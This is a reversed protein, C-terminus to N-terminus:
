GNIRFVGAQELHVQHAQREALAVAHAHLVAQVVLREVGGLLLAAATRGEVYVSFQPLQGRALYPTTTTTAAATAPTPPAGPYPSGSLM